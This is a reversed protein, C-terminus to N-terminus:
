PTTVLCFQRVKMGAEDLTDTDGKAVTPWSEGERLKADWFFGGGGGTKTVSLYFKGWPQGWDEIGDLPGVGSGHDSWEQPDCAPLVKGESVAHAIDGYDNM